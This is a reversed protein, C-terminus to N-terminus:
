SISFKPLQKALEAMREEAARAKASRRARAFAEPQRALIAKFANVLVEDSEVQGNYARDAREELDDLEEDDDRRAAKMWQVRLGRLTAAVADLGFYCYGRLAADVKRPSCEELAALVGGNM